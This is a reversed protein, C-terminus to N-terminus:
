RCSLMCIPTSKAMPPLGLPHGWYNIYTIVVNQGWYKSKGWINQNARLIKPLYLDVGTDPLPDQPRNLATVRCPYIRRASCFYAHNFFPQNDIISWRM